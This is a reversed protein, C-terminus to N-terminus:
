KQQELLDGRNLLILWEAYEPDHPLQLNEALKIVEDNSKGTWEQLASLRIHAEEETLIEADKEFYFVKAGLWSAFNPANHLLSYTSEETLLILGGKDGKDLRSRLADFSKWDATQWLELQWLLIYDQEAKKVQEILERVGNQGSIVAIESKIFIELTDQLDVVTSPIDESKVVLVAWINSDLHIIRKILLEDLSLKDM